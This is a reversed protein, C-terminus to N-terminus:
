RPPSPVLGSVVAQELQFTFTLCLFFFTATYMDDLHSFRDAFLLIYTSIHGRPPWLLRHQHYKQGQPRPISIIPWRVTM